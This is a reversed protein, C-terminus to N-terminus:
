NQTIRNLPERPARGVADVRDHSIWRIPQHFIAGLFLRFKSISSTPYPANRGRKVTV